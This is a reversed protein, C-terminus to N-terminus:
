EPRLIKYPSNKYNLDKGLGKILDEKIEKIAQLKKIAAENNGKNLSDIVTDIDKLEYKSGILIENSLRKAGSFYGTWWTVAAPGSVLVFGLLFTTFPRKTNRIVIDIWACFFLGLTVQVILNVENVEVGAYFPASSLFGALLFTPSWFIFEFPEIYEYYIYSINDGGFSLYILVNLLLVACAYLIFINDRLKFYPRKSQSVINM